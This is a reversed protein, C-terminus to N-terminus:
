AHNALICSHPSLGSLMDISYSSLDPGDSQGEWCIGTCNPELDGLLPRRKGKADTAEEDDLFGEMEEEDEEDPEEEGESLLEEGEGPDEWEAESDYDYNTDPMERLFPNRALRKATHSSAHKTFTGNYPPRVDEYFKLHKLRVSKLQDLPTTAPEFADTLDIPRQAVGDIQAIINKVSPPPCYRRRKELSPLHLLQHLGEHESTDPEKKIALGDDIKGCAYSLASDDRGFRNTPALRVNAHVFFAPFSREFESFQPKEPAASM